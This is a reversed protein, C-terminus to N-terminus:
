IYNCTNRFKFQQTNPYKSFFIDPSVPITYITNKSWLTLNLNKELNCDIQSHINWSVVNRNTPPKVLVDSVPVLMISRNIGISTGYTSPTKIQNDLKIAMISIFMQLFKKSLGIVAVLESVFEMPFQHVQSYDRTLQRLRRNDTLTRLDIGTKSPRINTRRHLCPIPGEHINHVM